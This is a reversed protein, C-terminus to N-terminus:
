QSITARQSIVYRPEDQGHLSIPLLTLAPITAACLFAHRLSRTMPVEPHPNLSSASGEAGRLGVTQVDVHATHIRPCAKPPMVATHTARTSQAGSRTSTRARQTAVCPSDAQDRASTATGPWATARM